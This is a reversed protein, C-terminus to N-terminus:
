DLEVKFVAVPELKVVPEVKFLVENPVLGNRVAEAVFEDNPAVAGLLVKLEVWVRDELTVAVDVKDPVLGALVKDETLENDEALVLVVVVALGDVKLLVRLVFVVELKVGLAVVLEDNLEVVVEVKLDPVDPEENVALGAVLENPEAVVAVLEVEADAVLENEDLVESKVRLISCAFAAKDVTGFTLGTLTVRSPM